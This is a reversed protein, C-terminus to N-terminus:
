RLFTIRLTADTGADRILRLRRINNIGAVIFTSGSLALHGEDATPDTGDYRYRVDAGEITIVVVRASLEGVPTVKTATLRMVNTSVTLSEYAYADSGVGIAVASASQAHIPQVGPIIVISALLAAILLIKKM